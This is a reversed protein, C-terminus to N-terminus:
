EGFDPLPTGTSNEDAMTSEIDNMDTSTHKPPSDFNGTLMISVAVGDPNVTSFSTEGYDIKTTLFREEVVSGNKKVTLKPKRYSNQDIDYTYGKGDTLGTFDKPGKPTPGEYASANYGFIEFDEFGYGLNASNSNPSDYSYMPQFSGFENEYEALTYFEGDNLGLTLDIVKIDTKSFEKKGNVNRLNFDGTEDYLLVTHSQPAANFHDGFGVLGNVVRLNNKSIGKKVALSAALVAFDECDGQKITAFKDPSLWVDAGLGESVYQFQSGSAKPSVKNFINKLKVTDTGDGIGTLLTVLGGSWKGSNSALWTAGNNFTIPSKYGSAKRFETRAADIADATYPKAFDGASTINQANTSESLVDVAMKSPYRTEMQFKGGEEALKASNAFTQAVQAATLWGNATIENTTALAAQSASLVPNVAATAASAAAYAKAAVAFPIHAFYLGAAVLPSYLQIAKAVMIGLDGARITAMKQRYYANNVETFQATKANIQSFLEMQKSIRKEVVQMDGEMPATGSTAVGDLRKAISQYSAVYAQTVFYFLRIRNQMTLMANHANKLAYWDVAMTPLREVGHLPKQSVEGVWRILQYHKDNLFDKGLYDTATYIYNKMDQLTQDHWNNYYDIKVHDHLTAKLSGPDSQFISANAKKDQFFTNTFHYGTLQYYGPKNELQKFVPSVNRNGVFENMFTITDDDNKGLVEKVKTFPIVFSEDNFSVVPTLEKELSNLETIQQIQDLTKTSFQATHRRWNFALNNYDEGAVFYKMPGIAMGGQNQFNGVTEKSVVRTDFPLRESKGYDYSYGLGSAVPATQAQASSSSPIGPLTPVTYRSDEDGDERELFDRTSWNAGFSSFNKGLSNSFKTPPDVKPDLNAGDKVKNDFKNQDDVTIVWPTSDFFSDDDDLVDLMEQITYTYFAPNSSSGTNIVLSLSTNVQSWDKVVIDSQPPKSESQAVASNKATNTTESQASEMNPDAGEIFERRVFQYYTPDNEGWYTSKSSNTLGALNEDDTKSLDIRTDMSSSIDKNAFSDVYGPQGTQRSYLQIRNFDYEINSFNYDDLGVM